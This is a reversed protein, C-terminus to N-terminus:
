KSLLAVLCPDNQMPQFSNFTSPSDSLMSSLISDVVQLNKAAAQWRRGYNWTAERLTELATAWEKNDMDGHFSILELTARYVVHSYSPPFSIVNVDRYHTNITQSIDVIMRIITQIALSSAVVCHAPFGGVEGKSLADATVSPHRSHLLLLSVLVVASPECFGCKVGKNLDVLTRMLDQLEADLQFKDDGLFDSEQATALRQRFAITRDFLRWAEAQYGFGGLARKDRTVGDESFRSFSSDLDVAEFPLHSPMSDQCHAFPKSLTAEPLLTSRDRIVLAWWINCREAAEIWEDSSQLTDSPPNANHLDMWHGMRVCLGISKYCEKHMGFGYEYCSLLIGAQIMELSADITANLYWYISRVARYLPEQATSSTPYHISLLICLLLIAFDPRKTKSFETLRRYFLKRSMIPMWKHINDFYCQSAGYIEGPHSQLLQYVEGGVDLTSAVVELRSVLDTCSDTSGLQSTIEASSPSDDLLASKSIKSTGPILMGEFTKLRKRLQRFEEVMPVSDADEYICQIHLKRCQLCGPLAKDCKKKKRRCSLCVNDARSTPREANIPSAFTSAM